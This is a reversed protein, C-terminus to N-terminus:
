AGQKLLQETTRRRLDEFPEADDPPPPAENVARRIGLRNLAESTELFGIDDGPAEVSGTIPKDDATPETTTDIGSRADAPEHAGEANVSLGTTPDIGAQVLKGRLFDKNHKWWKQITEKDQGLAQSFRGVLLNYKALKQQEAAADAKCQVREVIGGAKRGEGWM